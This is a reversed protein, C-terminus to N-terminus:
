ATERFLRELPVQLGPLLPTTLTESAELTLEIPRFFQEGHRRFVRVADIDPDVV